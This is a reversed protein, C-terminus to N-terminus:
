APWTQELFPETTGLGVKGSDSHCYHGPMPSCVNTSWEREHLRLLLETPVPEPGYGVLRELLEGVAASAVMTTYAVVAPEVGPLGVAYGEAERRKREFPTLLESRARALDIRRRCVLCAAGPHLVTVRGNIGDLRGASDSSLVVGCDIVLTLLYSAVRSLVLRGANDDTCGFVVDVASLRRAASQDTIMSPVADVISEPAIGLLSERVVEVKKRGISTRLSGYLRTLNSESIDEPDLLVFRRVGLRVLQEAVSSGTGGCGVVAVRLDGLVLQIDEGFARVNRDFLSSVQPRDHSKNWTLRLREGLSIVRDIDIRERESLICGCFQLVGSKIAVVVSGYYASGSRTRFTESLQEDVRLDHTSPRPSAGEGPHTHLWIPVAGMQEAIRLAEVYGGSRILLSREERREYESAPVELLRVALLRVVGPAFVPRALLVAGTEVQLRALELLRSAIWGPLVLTTTPSSM